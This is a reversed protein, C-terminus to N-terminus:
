WQPRCEPQRMQLNAGRRMGGGLRGERLRFCDATCEANAQCFGKDGDTCTYGNWGSLGQKPHNCTCMPHHRRPASSARQAAVSNASRTHRGSQATKCQPTDSDGKIKPTCAPPSADPAFATPRGAATTHRLQVAEVDPVQPDPAFLLEHRDHLEAGLSATALLLSFAAVMPPPTTVPTLATSFSPPLM